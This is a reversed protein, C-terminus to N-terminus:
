TEYKEPLISAFSQNVFQYLGKYGRLAKEFHVVFTKGRALEEGLSYAAPKGDVYYVGGCLQLPRMKELAERAASYDGADDRQGRWLDLVRCADDRYEELLPRGEYTYNGVFANVLNKKRHLKRGSLRALDGRSYLYDFNDRDEAVRYGMKRLVAAQSEAVAKMSGFEAFLSDLLAKDPLGFPLMFFTGEGDRGSIAFLGGAIRAIRYNHIKRFLYLNAFTFESIGDGLERFLPHLLPRHALSFESFRPTQEAM